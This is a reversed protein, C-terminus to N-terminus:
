GASRPSKKVSIQAEQASEQTKGAQAEERTKEEKAYHTGGKKSHHLLEEAVKIHGHYVGFPM